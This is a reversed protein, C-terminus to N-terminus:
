TRDRLGYTSEGEILRPEQLRNNLTLDQSWKQCLLLKRPIKDTKENCYRGKVM